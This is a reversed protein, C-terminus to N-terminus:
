SSDCFGPNQYARKGKDLFIFGNRNSGILEWDCCGWEDCLETPTLLKTSYKHIYLRMMRNSGILEWDYCGWEDCLETLTLLKTSYKHIYLRM